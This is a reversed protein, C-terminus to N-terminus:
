RVEETEATAVCGTPRWDSRGAVWRVDRRVLRGGDMDYSAMTTLAPSYVHLSLAARTGENTVDHVRGADVALTTGARVENRVLTLQEDEHRLPTTEVLAGRIVTFAGRSCGHDHLEVSGGVPWAILWADYEPSRALLAWSRVVTTVPETWRVAAALRKALVVPEVGPRTDTSASHEFRYRGTRSRPPAAM